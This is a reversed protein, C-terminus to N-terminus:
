FLWWTAHVFPVKKNLGLDFDFEWTPALLFRPGLFPPLYPSNTPVCVHEFHMGFPQNTTTALVLLWSGMWTSYDHLKPSLNKCFRFTAEQVKCVWVWLVWWSNSEPSAVVKGKITYEISLWPVLVWMDHQKPIGLHSDRFEWLQSEWSKPPGYSQMCVELQSSELPIFFEEIWQTKVRTIM